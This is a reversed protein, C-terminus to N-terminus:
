SVYEEIIRRVLIAGSFKADDLPEVIGVTQHLDFRDGKGPARDVRCELQDATSEGALVIVRGEGGRLGEPEVRRRLVAAAM